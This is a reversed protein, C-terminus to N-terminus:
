CSTDLTFLRFSREGAVGEKLGEGKFIGAIGIRNALAVLASGPPPQLSDWAAVAAPKRMDLLENPPFKHKESPPSLSM